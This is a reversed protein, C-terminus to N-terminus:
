DSVRYRRERGDVPWNRALVTTWEPPGSNPNLVRLIPDLTSVVGRSCYDGSRSLPTTAHPVLGNVQARPAAAFFAPWTAVRVPRCPAGALRRALRALERQDAACPDVSPLPIVLWRPAPGRGPPFAHAPALWRAADLNDTQLELFPRVGHGAPIAATRTDEADDAYRM